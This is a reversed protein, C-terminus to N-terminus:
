LLSELTDSKKPKATNGGATQESDEDAYMDLGLVFKEYLKAREIVEGSDPTRHVALKLCELRLSAEDV